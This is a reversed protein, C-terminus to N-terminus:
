RELDGIVSKLSGPFFTKIVAFLITGDFSRTQGLDDDCRNTAVVITADKEPLYWMECQFGNIAGEHGWFKGFKAIGEGYEVPAMAIPDTRLREAQTAPKLLNGKYLCRVWKRLDDATSIMAGAAGSSAPNLLTKDDYNQAQANWGYGHLDGPLESGVPFHTGNLGMPKVINASIYEAISQGSVKQLIVGLITYNVDRYETKHNPPGFGSRRSATREIVREAPIEVLPHIYREKLLESDWGQAIGSRMRLLDDVTIKDAGPFDPFWKALPDSKTLKGHDILQLIATATFTKTISGIRFSDNANMARSTKLNAAGLAAIFEGEGPVVVAVIVGPLVNKRIQREIASTLPGTMEVPFVKEAARTSQGISVSGALVAALVKSICFKKM